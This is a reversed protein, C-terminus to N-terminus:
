FNKFVYLYFLLMTWLLLLSESYFLKATEMELVEEWTSLKLNLALNPLCWTLKNCRNVVQHNSHGRLCTSQKTPTRMMTGRTPTFTRLLSRKSIATTSSKTKSLVAKVVWALTSKRQTTTPNPHWPFSTPRTSSLDQSRILSIIPCKVTTNASKTPDQLNIKMGVGPCPSIQSVMLQHCRLCIYIQSKTQPIFPTFWSNEKRKIMLQNNPSIRNTTSSKQNKQPIVCKKRRRSLTSLM